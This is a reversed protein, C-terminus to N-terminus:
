PLRIPQRIRKGAVELEFWDSGSPLKVEVSAPLGDRFTRAEAGKSDYIVASPAVIQHEGVVEAFIEVISRMDRAIKHDWIDIATGTDLDDLEEMQGEDIEDGVGVLVCKVSGRRSAAIERALTTTFRKVADLDEIRGDTLFVYMARRADKFRDVFYRVAPLLATGTGFGETQPGQIQLARCQAETFDGVVEVASGDGCAWYIVTTGGDEDLKGALYAIFDRASPEVINTSVTVYGRARADDFAQQSLGRVRRGDEERVDMWGRREYEKSAAPPISGELMQGYWSKMSASGDLAVGTQWGEAEQGTPEMLITFRATIGSLEEIVNVEGFAADVMHSPLQRSRSGGPTRPTGLLKDLWGM